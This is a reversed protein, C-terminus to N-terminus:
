SQDTYSAYYPFGYGDSGAKERNLVVGLVNANVDSLRRLTQELRRRPLTGACAVLVVGDVQISLTLADAVALVPSSDVIVYDTHQSVIELLDRMADSGLLTVAASRDSGAAILGLRTQGIRQVSQKILDRGGNPQGQGDLAILLEAVGYDGAVDFLKHLMPRHLDADILV